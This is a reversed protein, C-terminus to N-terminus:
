PTRVMAAPREGYDPRITHPSSPLPATRALVAIAAAAAEARRPLANVIHGREAFAAIVDETAAVTTWTTDAPAGALTALVVDVISGCATDVIGNARRRVCAIGPRGSVFTAVPEIVGPPELADYSSIAVLPRGAGLALSKAFSIAIRLGTFGGPGIGVAIRECGALAVGNEHLLAAVAQLGAELSQTGPVIRSRVESGDDLACSFAGLAGDLALIV